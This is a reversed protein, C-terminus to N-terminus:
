SFKAAYIRNGNDTGGGSTPALNAPYRTVEASATVILDNPHNSKNASAVLVTPYNYGFTPM